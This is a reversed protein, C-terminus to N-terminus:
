TGPNQEPRRLHQRALRERLMALASGCRLPVAYYIARESKNPQPMTKVKLQASAFFAGRSICGVLHVRAGSERQEVYARVLLAPTRGLAAAITDCRMLRARLTEDLVGARVVPYVLFDDGLLRAFSVAGDAAGGERHRQGVRTAKVEYGCIGRQEWERLFGRPFHAQSTGSAQAHAVRAARAFPEGCVLGALAELAVFGDLPAHRRYGDDRLDDWSRCALGAQGAWREFACEALKGVQTDALKHAGDRGPQWTNATHAALQAAFQAAVRNEMGAGALEVTVIQDPTIM